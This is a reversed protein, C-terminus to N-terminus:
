YFDFDEFGLPMIVYEQFDVTNDAHSGGNIINLMPVPLTIANAGGLYRYLPIKLSKASARAVAM